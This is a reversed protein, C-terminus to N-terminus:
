VNAHPLNKVISVRFGQASGDMFRAELLERKRPDLAQLNEM